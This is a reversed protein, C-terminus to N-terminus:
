LSIMYLLLISFLGVIHYVGERLKCNDQSISVYVLIDFIIVFGILILEFNQLVLFILLPTFIICISVQKGIYITM